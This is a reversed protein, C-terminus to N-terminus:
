PLYPVSQKCHVWDADLLLWTKAQDSLNEIIPHLIDRRWPSNTVFVFKGLSDLAYVRSRADGSLPTVEFGAEDLHRVLDGAGPCPEIIPTQRCLHPLLPKLAALPTAYDDQPRRPFDSRKGM